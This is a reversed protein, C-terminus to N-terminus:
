DKAMILKLDFICKCLKMNREENKERLKEDNMIAFLCFYRVNVSQRKKFTLIIFILISFSDHILRGMKSISYENTNTGDIIVM